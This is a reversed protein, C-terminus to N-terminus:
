PYKSRMVEVEEERGGEAEWRMGEVEGERWERGMRERGGERGGRGKGEGKKGERGGESGGESGGRRGGESGGRRWLSISTSKFAVGSEGPRPILM